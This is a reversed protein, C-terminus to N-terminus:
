LTYGIRFLLPQTHPLHDNSLFDYLLQLNGNRKGVKYKKTLGILASKQWLDLPPLGALHDLAPLYNYELGGTIWISGKAKVDLYSRMSMGQSSMHIHDLSHGWGINYSAGLGVTARDSLNYGATLGLASTTPLITTGPQSQMNFGFELRQLFSKVKQGNPKFDPMTVDAANGLGGQRSFKDQLGDIGQQTSAVQGQMYEIPNASLGGFRSMLEQEVSERTQSGALAQATGTGAPMPFLASLWSNKQMLEQYVPLKAITTLALNTMKQKDRLIGKYQELQQQYYYVEKNMGSLKSGLDYGSLKDKLQQMRANTFQRIDDARQLQQQLQGLQTGLALAKGGIGPSLGNIAGKQQLLKTLVNMSDLRPIYSSISHLPIAASDPRLNNKLKQYISANDAFLQAARLSDKHGLRDRLRNEDKFLTELVKDSRTQLSLTIKEYTDRQQSLATASIAVPSLAISNEDAKQQGNAIATGSAILLLTLM